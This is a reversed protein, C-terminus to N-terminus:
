PSILKSSHTMTIGSRSVLVLLEAITSPGRSASTLISFLKCDIFSVGLTMVTDAILDDYPM